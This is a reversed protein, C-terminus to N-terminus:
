ARYSSVRKYLEYIAGTKNDIEQNAGSLGSVPILLNTFAPEKEIATRLEKSPGNNFITGNTAVGMISPGVYVLAETVPSKKRASRVPASEESTAATEVEGTEKAAKKTSSM